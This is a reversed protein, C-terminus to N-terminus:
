PLHIGFWLKPLNRGTSLNYYSKPQPIGFSDGVQKLCVQMITSPADPGWTKDWVFIAPLTCCLLPKAANSFHLYSLFKFNKENGAHARSSSHKFSESFWHKFIDIWIFIIQYYHFNWLEYFATCFQIQNQKLTTILVGWQCWSGNLMWYAQWTSFTYNWKWFTVVLLSLNWQWQLVGQSAYGFSFNPAKHRTNALYNWKFTPLKLLDVNVFHLLM